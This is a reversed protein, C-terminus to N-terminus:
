EVHTNLLEIVKQIEEETNQTHVIVRYRIAYASELISIVKDSQRFSDKIFTKNSERFIDHKRILMQTLRDDLLSNNSRIRDYHHEYLSTIQNLVNKNQIIQTGRQTVLSNYGGVTPFFTPNYATAYHFLSDFFPIDNIGEETLRLCEKLADAFKWQQGLIHHINDLDTNM